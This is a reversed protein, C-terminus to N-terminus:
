SQLRKIEILFRKPSLNHHVEGIIINKNLLNEWNKVTPETESSEKRQKAAFLKNKLESVIEQESKYTNTAPPTTELKKKSESINTAPHTNEEDLISEESQHPHTNSNSRTM